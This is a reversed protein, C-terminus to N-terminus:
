KAPLALEETTLSRQCIRIEDFSGIFSQGELQNSVGLSVKDAGSKDPRTGTAVATGDIFLYIVRKPKPDFNAPM